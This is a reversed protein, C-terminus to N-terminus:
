HRWQITWEPAYPIRGSRVENPFIWIEAAEARVIAMVKDTSYELISKSVSVYIYLVGVASTIGSTLLTEM